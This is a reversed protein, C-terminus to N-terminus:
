GQGHSAAVQRALRLDSPKDVDIALRPDDLFVADATTGLRRGAAAVVARAGARLFLLRVLTPLGFSLAMRWPRKRAREVRQWFRVAQLSSEDKLAFLNCSTVPEGGLPMWTRQMQPFTGLVDNRRALAVVLAAPSAAAASLFTRVAEPSLFPLDGTTVLIPWQFSAAEVAKLVSASASSAPALLRVRQALGPGLAARAADADDIVVHIAGIPGSDALAQVVRRLMPVGGVAITAKHLVGAHRALPDDPGRSAALVIATWHGTEGTAQISPGANM